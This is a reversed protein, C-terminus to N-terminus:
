RVFYNVKCLLIISITMCYRVFQKAFCYLNDFMSTYLAKHKFLVADDNSICQGRNFAIAHHNPMAITGHHHIHHQSIHFNNDWLKDVM